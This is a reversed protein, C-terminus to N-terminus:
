DKHIPAVWTQKWGILKSVGFIAVETLPGAGLYFADYQKLAVSMHESILAVIDPMFWVLVPAFLATLAWNDWNMKLYKKYDFETGANDCNNKALSFLLFNYVFSGFFAFLYKM